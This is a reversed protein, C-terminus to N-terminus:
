GEVLESLELWEAELGDKEDTVAARQQNLDNLGEYDSPDHAAMQADIDAIQQELKGLKREIASLRKGAQYKKQRLAKAEEPTLQPASDDSDASSAAGGKVGGM